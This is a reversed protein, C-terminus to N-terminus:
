IQGAASYRERFQNGCFGGCCQRRGQIFHWHLDCRFSRRGHIGRHNPRLTGALGHEAGGRARQAPHDVAGRRGAAPIINRQEHGPGVTPRPTPTPQPTATPTPPACYPTATPRLRRRPNRHPRQRYRHQRRCSRRPPSRRQLLSHPQLLRLRRLQPPHVRRRLWQRFRRPPIPRCTPLWAKPLSLLPQRRLSRSAAAM